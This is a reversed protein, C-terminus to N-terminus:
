EEDIEGARDPIQGTRKYVDARGLVGVLEMGTVLGSQSGKAMMERYQLERLCYRESPGTLTLIVGGPFDLAQYVMYALRGRNVARHAMLNWGAPIVNRERLKAVREDFTKCTDEDDMLLLIGRCVDNYSVTELSSARDLYLASPEDDPLAKPSQAEVNGWECGGLFLGAAALLLIRRTTALPNAM